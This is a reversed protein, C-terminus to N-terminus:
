LDFIKNPRRVRKSTPLTAKSNRTQITPTTKMARTQITPSAMQVHQVGRTSTANTSRPTNGRTLVGLNTGRVPTTTRLHLPPPTSIIGRRTRTNRTPPPSDSPPLNAVAKVASSIQLKAKPVAPSTIQVPKTSKIVSGVIIGLDPDMVLQFAPAAQDGLTNLEPIEDPNFITKKGGAFLIEEQISFQM